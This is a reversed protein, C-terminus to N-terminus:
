PSLPLSIVKYVYRYGPDLPTTQSGESSSVELFSLFLLYYGEKIKETTEKLGKRKSMEKKEKELRKEKEYTRKKESEKARKGEEREQV